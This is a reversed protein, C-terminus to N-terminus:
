TQLAVLQEVLEDVSKALAYLREETLRSRAVPKELSRQPTM